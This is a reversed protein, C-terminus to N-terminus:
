HSDVSIHDGSAKKALSRNPRVPSDLSIGKIVLEKHVM